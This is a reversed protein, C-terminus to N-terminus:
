LGCSYRSRAEGHNRIEHCSNSFIDYIEGGHAIRSFIHGFQLFEHLSWLRRLRDPEVADVAADEITRLLVVLDGVQFQRGRDADRRRGTRPPHLPQAGLADDRGVDRQEVREADAAAQDHERADRELALALAEQLVELL